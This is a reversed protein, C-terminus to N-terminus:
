FCFLFYKGLNGQHDTSLFECGISTSSIYKKVRVERRITSRRPDDLTFEIEIRQGSEMKLKKPWDIMLGRRSINKIQIPYKRTGDFYSGKFDVDKRISSRRELIISVTKKCSCKYKLRVETEHGMFRSVDKQKAVGCYPCTLMAKLKSNVFVKESM